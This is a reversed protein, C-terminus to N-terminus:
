WRPKPVASPRRTPFGYVARIAKVHMRIYVANMRAQGRKSEADLGEWHPKVEDFLPDAQLLPGLAEAYERVRRANIGAQRKRGQYDILWLLNRIEPNPEHNSPVTAKAKVKAKVKAKATEATGQRDKAERHAASRCVTSCFRATSRLATFGEGCHECVKELERERDTMGLTLVPRYPSFGTLLEGNAIVANALRQIPYGLPGNLKTWATYCVWVWSPATHTSNGARVGEWNLSSLRHQYVHGIEHLAAGKLRLADKADYGEKTLTILGIGPNAPIEIVGRDVYVHAVHRGYAAVNGVAVRVTSLDVKDAGIGDGWLTPAIEFAEDIIAKAAPTLSIYRSM